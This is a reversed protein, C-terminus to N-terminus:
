QKNPIKEEEVINSSKKDEEKPRNSRTDIIEDESSRVAPAPTEGESGRGAASHGGRGKYMPQYGKALSTGEM